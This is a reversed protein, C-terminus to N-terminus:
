LNFPIINTISLKWKQLAKWQTTCSYLFLAAKKGFYTGGRDVPQTPYHLEAWNVEILYWVCDM